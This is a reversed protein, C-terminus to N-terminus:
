KERKGLGIRHNVAVIHPGPLHKSFQLLVEIVFIQFLVSLDIDAAATDPSFVSDPLDEQCFIGIHGGILWVDSGPLSTPLVASNKRYMGMYQCEGGTM